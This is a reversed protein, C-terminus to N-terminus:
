IVIWDMFDKMVYVCEQIKMVIDMNLIVIKNVNNKIVNNVMINLIVNVNEQILIVIEM